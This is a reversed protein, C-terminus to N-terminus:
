VRDLILQAKQQFGRAFFPGNSLSAVTRPYNLRFTRPLNSKLM